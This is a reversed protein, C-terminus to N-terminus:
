RRRSKKAKFKKSFEVFNATFAKQLDDEALESEEPTKPPFHKLGNGGRGKVLKTEELGDRFDKVIFRNNLSRGYIAAKKYFNQTVIFEVYCAANSDTLRTKQKTTIKRDAIPEEFIIQSEPLNLEELLDISKLARVQMQPGLADRLYDGESKNKGDNAAADALAGVVGFGSLWGTTQAQGELTPFVRLECEPKAAEAAAQAAAEAQAQEAAQAAAEAADAAAQAAAEAADTAAEEAPTATTEAQLSEQANAGASLAAASTASASLITLGVALGIPKLQKKM